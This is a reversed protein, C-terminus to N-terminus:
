KKSTSILPCKKESFNIFISFEYNYKICNLIIIEAAFTTQKLFFAAFLTIKQYFCSMTIFFIKIPAYGKDTRIKLYKVLSLQKKEINFFTM